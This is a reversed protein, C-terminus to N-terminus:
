GPIFQNRDPSYIYGIKAMKEVVADVDKRAEMVIEYFVADDPDPFYEDLPIKDVYIAQKKIENVLNIVADIPFRFKKEALCRLINM